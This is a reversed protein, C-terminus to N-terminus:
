FYSRSRHHSSVRRETALPDVVILQQLQQGSADHTFDVTPTLSSGVVLYCDPYEGGGARKIWLRDRAESILSRKDPLQRMRVNERDLTDALITRTMKEDHREEFCGQAVRQRLGSVATGEVEHVGNLDGCLDDRREARDM